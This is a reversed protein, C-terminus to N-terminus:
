RSKTNQVGLAFGNLFYYCNLLYEQQYREAMRYLNKKVGKFDVAIKAKELRRLFEIREKESCIEKFYGWVHLAANEETGVTPSLPQATEVLGYFQRVAEKPDQKMLETMQQYIHASRSLIFYKYRAWEKQLGEEPMTKPQSTYSCKLASLNKDKVELMVDVELDNLDQYFELFEKLNITASHAGPRGGSAQQSYHMKQRGDQVLWTRGFLEIWEHVSKQDSSPNIQHHLLDFIAPAGVSRAIALVEEASFCREDNELVLRAKISKPLNAYSSKFRLIASSKDEYVGGIHLVIKHHNDLGMASLLDDHYILDAFAREVVDERPSNLLTYQGPHMSVRMGSKIIRAGIASFKEAHEEQWNQHNLIHSAFPIIDSSIRFLMLGNQINYDIMKELADLNQGTITRLTEDDANKATCAHLATGYVGLTICAYGISM